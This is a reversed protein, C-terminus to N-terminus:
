DCIRAYFHVGLEGKFGMDVMEAFGEKIVELVDGFEMGNEFILVDGWDEM